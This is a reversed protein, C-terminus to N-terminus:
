VCRIREKVFRIGREIFPVHLNTDCCYLTMRQESMKTKCSEFVRDAYIMKIIFSRIMYDSKIKQIVALFTAASKNSTGICQFYKIHKSVAIIFPLNNIHLIDFGLIAMGYREIISPQIDIILNSDRPM